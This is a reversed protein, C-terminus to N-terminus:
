VRFVFVDLQLVIFVLPFTLYADQDTDRSKRRKKTVNKKTKEYNNVISVRATVVRVSVDYKSPKENVKFSVILRLFYKAIM